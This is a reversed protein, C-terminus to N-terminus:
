HEALSGLATGVLLAEAIIHGEARALVDARTSAAPLDLWTDLALLRFKYHHTGAFYRPCPGEYGHTGGNALGETAGDPISDPRVTTTTPPINFVLWHVWPNAPADVDEVMLVLSKANAPIDSFTLPPSVNAGDCTYATPVPQRDKFAVSAIEMSTEEFLENVARVIDDPQADIVPQRVTQHYTYELLTNKSRASLPVDFYLVRNPTKWPTHQPNTHAYLVVVPTKVAAAIHATGTNNTILMPAADILGILEGLTLKGALSVGGVERAVRECLDIEADGGTVVIQKDRLAQGAEIFQEPPYQRRGESVGPHLILWRRAPDIQAKSLASARADDPVTLRLARDGAQAGINSVLALQREVEHKIPTFPESDPTWDTLLHYPNERCYGLRLPINAMYCILAAPLPNQSFVTFLIAADFQEAALREILETVAASATDTRMWPVDFPIVHDIEPIFEAIGAGIASTLLTLRVDPNLTKLARFAPTTMIVDGM